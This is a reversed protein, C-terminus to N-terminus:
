ILFRCPRSYESTSFKRDADAAHGAEDVAADDRHGSKTHEIGIAGPKFFAVADIGINGYRFIEGLARM